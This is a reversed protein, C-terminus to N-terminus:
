HQADPGVAAREGPLRARRPRPLPIDGPEREGPNDLAHYDSGGLPLIGLRKRWRRSNAVTEEDYDKYYVEM